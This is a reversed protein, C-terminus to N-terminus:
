RDLFQVPESFVLQFNVMEKYHPVGVDDSNINPDLRYNKKVSMLFSASLASVEGLPSTKM